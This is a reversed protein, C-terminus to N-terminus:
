GHKVIRIWRSLVICLIDIARAPKYNSYKGDAKVYYTEFKVHVTLRNIEYSEIYVATVELFM